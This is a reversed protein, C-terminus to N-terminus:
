SRIQGGFFELRITAKPLISPRVRHDKHEYTIADYQPRRRARDCLLSPRIVRGPPLATNHRFTFLIGRPQALPPSRGSAIQSGSSLFGCCRRHPSERVFQALKREGTGRTALARWSAVATEVRWRLIPESLGNPNEPMWRFRPPVIISKLRKGCTGMM